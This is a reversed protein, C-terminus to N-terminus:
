DTLGVLKKMEGTKSINKAFEEADIKLTLNITYTAAKTDVKVTTNKSMLDRLDTALQFTQSKAFDDTVESMKDVAAMYTTAVAGIYDASGGLNKMADAILVTYDKFIGANTFATQIKAYNYGAVSDVLREFGGGPEYFAALEGFKASDPVGDKLSKEIEKAKELTTGMVGMTTEISTIHDKTVGKEKVTNAFGVMRGFADQLKQTFVGDIAETIKTVKISVTEFPDEATGEIKKIEMAGTVTKLFEGISSTISFLEKVNEVKDRIDSTKGSMLPNNLAKAMAGIFSPLVAPFVGLLGTAADVMKTIRTKADGASELQNYSPPFAAAIQILSASLQGFSAVSNLITAVRNVRQDFGKGVDKFLTPDSALKIVTGIADKIGQFFKEDRFPEMIDVFIGSLKRLKEEDVVGESDSAARSLESFIRPGQAALELMPPLIASILKTAAEFKGSDAGTAVTMLRNVIEKLHEIPKNMTSILRTTSEMANVFLQNREKDSTNYRYKPMKDMLESVARSSDIGARTVGVFINIKKELVGVDPVDLRNIARILPMAAEIVSLLTAFITAIGMGALLPLVVSAGPILYVTGIAVAAGLAAAGFLGLDEIIDVFKQIRDPDKISEFMYDMLKVVIAMSTIFAATGIALTAIGKWDIAGGAMQAKSLVFLAAAISGMMAISGLVIGGLKLLSETSTGEIIAASAKVFLTMAVMFVGLAGVFKALSMASPIAIPAAAGGAALAPNVAAAAASTVSEAARAAAIKAMLGMMLKTALEGVATFAGRIAGGLANTLAPGLGAIGAAATVGIAVGGPNAFLNFIAGLLGSTDISKVFEPFKEKFWAVVFDKFEILVPEVMTWMEKFFDKVAEWLSSFADSLPSAPSNYWEKISKTLFVIVNRLGGAAYQLLGMFIARITEGIKKGGRQMGALNDGELNLATRFMTKIGDLFIGVASNRKSPDALNKMFDTLYEKFIKMRPGIKGLDFIKAFSSAFEGLGPFNNVFIIGIERFHRRVATLSFRLNKLLDMMPKARMFGETFGKSMAEFFSSMPDGGSGVFRKISKGLEEMVKIQREQVSEADEASSVVQDYALSQNDASFAAELSAGTLGTQQELLKRTANTANEISNGSAFFARRMEDIAEPGGKMLELTDVNMGFAQAMEAAGKAADEFNLFKNMVNGLDQIEIGLKSAYVAAAVMHKGSLSGFNSVDKSMEGLSKGIVKANIGYQRGMQQSMSAFKIISQTGDKGLSQAHKLMAATADASGTFGKTLVILEPINGRINEQLRNLSSGLSTAIEQFAAMAEAIGEPGPGFIKRVSLGTGGLNGLEGRVEKLSSAVTKGENKSLDGFAERIEELRVKIPNPGSPLSNAMEILSNLMAFPAAIVARSFKILSGAADLVLGAFSKAAGAVGKMGSAILKLGGIFKTSTKSGKDLTKTNAAISKSVIDAQKSVQALSKTADNLADAQSSTSDRNDKTKQDIATMLQAHQSILSNTKELIRMRETLLENLKVQLDVQDQSVEPTKNEAM